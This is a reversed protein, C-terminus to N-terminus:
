YGRKKDVVHLLAEGRAYRGLNDLFISFAVEDYQATLGAYHATIIVSDATWLPSNEPLPEEETVDLVAGAILKRELAAILDTEKVSGGRGVNAFLASPKMRSIFDLDILGATEATLPLINVVVDASPLLAPLEGIEAIRVGDSRTDAKRATRRVGIVSMGFARAISATQEGITGMGLILMTKGALGVMDSAPPKIWRKGSQASFSSPFKRCWSLILGFLHENMQASHMGSTSTLTFPLHQTEPFKQLWDTGASWAQVWRLSPMRHLLDAPVDGGVIVADALRAEIEARDDTALVTKSPDVARIAAEADEPLRSRKLALLILAKDNM